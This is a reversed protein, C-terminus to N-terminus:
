APSVSAADQARRSAAQQVDPAIAASMGHGVGEVVQHVFKLKAIVRDALVFPYVDALGM